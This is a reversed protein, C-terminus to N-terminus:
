KKSLLQIQLEYNRRELEYIRQISEMKELTYKLQIELESLKCQIERTHGAYIKAVSEFDSKTYSFDKASLAVLESNEPVDLKKGLRAFLNKIYTEAKSIYIVDVIHYLAVDVVVGKIKSYNRSHENLRRDFDETFGYKYVTLDDEVCQHIGLGQRLDKVKGLSLLYICPFSSAHKKIMNRYVRIDLDLLRSGLVEKEERSGMQATFLTEETWDQFEEAKKSRSTFLVKLVGKYTLFINKFLKKNNSLDLNKVRGVVRHNDVNKVIYNKYHIGEIYTGDSNNLLTQKINPLEFASSIDQLKFYIKKRNMEGRTEIEYVNGDRDRFKEEEDLDIINPAVELSDSIQSQAQPVQAQDQVTVQPTVAQPYLGFFHQDVWVKTLLLQAKKCSEDTRRWTKTKVTYIAFVYDDNEIKRRSIINRIRATCGYFFERKYELLHKTNYYEQKSDDIVFAVPTTM